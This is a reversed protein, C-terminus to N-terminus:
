DDESPLNHTTQHPQETPDDDADDTAADAPASDANTEGGSDLESGDASSASEPADTSSDDASSSDTARPGEGTVQFGGTEARGSLEQQPYPIKIGEDDFARKIEHIATTRAQVFRRSSPNDIWFRVGLTVASDDLSKTVVQPSPANLSKELDEVTDKALTSARELDAEYDVGVDVEVRLRGRKSRNTVMESSVVDNPIMIYEGDFSQIRTNVISIDTVIGEEDEIEVWDGIEFPRDFMLVFGALVTGLTQQAAIGVVIGLFGAGALLSALDDTWVGLIVVIAVAWVVVQSIRQTIERQHDTVASASGFVEDILRKVFRTFILTGVAIVFTVSAQLVVDDSLGLDETYLTQVDDTLDWVGLIIALTLFCSGILVTTALIDGYLPKTRNSFWGKIKRYSLLIAVLFGIAAITAGIQANFGTAESLRELVTLPFM